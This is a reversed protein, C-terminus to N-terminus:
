VVSKRDSPLPLILHDTLSNAKRSLSHHLTLEEPRLHLKGPFISHTSPPLPVIRIPSTIRTILQPQIELHYQGQLIIWGHTGVCGCTPWYSEGFGPSAISYSSRGGRFLTVQLMVNLYGLSTSNLENVEELDTYRAVM